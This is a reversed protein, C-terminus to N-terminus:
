QRKRIPIISQIKGARNKWRKGPQKSPWPVQYASTRNVWSNYSKNVFTLHTIFWITTHYTTYTAKRLIIVHYVNVYSVEYDSVYPKYLLECLPVFRSCWCLLDHLDSCIQIRVACGSCLRQLSGGAGSLSAESGTLREFISWLQQAFHNNSTAPRQSIETGSWEAGHQERAHIHM